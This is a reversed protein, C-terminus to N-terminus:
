DITQITFLNSEAKAISSHTVSVFVYKDGLELKGQQVLINNILPLVQDASPMEDLCVGEVGRVLQLRRVVESALTIAIIPTKIDFCSLHIATNGMKTICVIAKADNRYAARYAAYTVAHIEDKIEPQGKQWNSTMEIPSDEVDCITKHALEFGRLAYDGQTLVESLVIADASDMVANGIDSVEARTPTPNFRMSGLMDSAVLCIKTEDKCSTIIEKTLMPVQAPDTDMALEIRSIVVGRVLPLLKPLAEYTAVSGVKLILWPQFRCKEIRETLLQLEEHSEFSPLILYDVVESELAQWSEEPIDAYRPPKQTGPVYLETRDYIRNGQVVELTVGQDSVALTNLTAGSGCYVTEGEQFLGRWEPTEIYLGTDSREPSVEIKQGFSLEISECGLRLSARPNRHLDVILPVNFSPNENKLTALQALRDKMEYPLIALRIADAEPQNLCAQIHRDFNRGEFSWVIGTRRGQSLM